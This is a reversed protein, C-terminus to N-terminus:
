SLQLGFIWVIKSIGASAEVFAAIEKMKKRTAKSPAVILTRMQIDVFRCVFTITAKQNQLDFCEQYSCIIDKYPWV